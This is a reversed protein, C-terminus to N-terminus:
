TSAPSPSCAADGRRARGCRRGCARQSRTRCRALSCGRPSDAWPVRPLEALPVGAIVALERAAGVSPRERAPGVWWGCTIDGNRSDPAFSEGYQLPAWVRGLARPTRSRQPMVGIRYLRRRGADGSPRRHGSRGSSAALARRWAVVRAREGITPAMFERGFAPAVGLVRLLRRERAPRRAAGTRRATLTPQWSKFVALTAAPPQAAGGRPVDRLDSRAARRRQRRGIERDAVQRRPYPLPEFLVPNVASFDSDHASGRAGADSASRTFAQRTSASTSRRVSPRRRLYRISTRGGSSRVENRIRITQRARAARRAPGRGAIATADAERGGRRRLASRTTSIERGRATPM